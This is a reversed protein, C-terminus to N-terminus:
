IDLNGSKFLDIFQRAIRPSRGGRKLAFLEAKKHIEDKPAILKEDAAMADLINLFEQLNPNVYTITIGFRDSLSLQEEMTDARHLEDGERESFTERVLHRRNSTAYILVNKPKIALGGELVAKLVAFSSDNSNFSLDDIFVIFKLPIKSLIETLEPLTEIDSKRMEVIRLGKSQFEALLAHVTSSKGTGRDGYFLINAGGNSQLFSLTNAVATKKQTEYGKLDSLTIKCHNLIPVLQRNQWLFASNSAFIGFGRDAYCGAVRSIRDIYASLGSGREIKWFSLREEFAKFNDITSIIAEPTLAALRSLTEIDKRAASIIGEPLSMLRNAVCARAFINDDEFIEKAVAAALNDSNTLHTIEYFFDSWSLLLTSSVKGVSCGQLLKMAKAVLREPKLLNKYISLCCLDFYLKQIQEM